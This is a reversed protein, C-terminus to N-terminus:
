HVYMSYGLRGSSSRNWAQVGIFYTGSGLSLSIREAQGQPNLSSGVVNWQGGAAPAILYVDADQDPQEVLLDITLIGGTVNIAYVDEIQSVGTTDPMIQGPSSSSIVPTTGLDGIAVNGHIISGRAIQQAGPVALADNPEVENAFSYPAAGDVAKLRFNGRASQDIGYPDNDDYTYSYGGQVMGVGDAYSEGRDVFIDAPNYPGTDSYHLSSRVVNYSGAPVTVQGTSMTSAAGYSAGDSLLFGNTGFSGGAFSLIRRWSTGSWTDLGSQDQSLHLTSLVQFAGTGSIRFQLLEIASRGQWTVTGNSVLLREGRFSSSNCGSHSCVTGTTTDTYLWQKGATSPFAFPPVVPAGTTFSWSYDSGLSKGADSQVGSTITATYTTSSALPASPTFTATAGAVSVNGTVGGSVAFVGAGFSAPDLTASFTASITTTASVDTANKPPTTSTVTLSGGGGGGSAGTPGDGGCAIIASLVVIM